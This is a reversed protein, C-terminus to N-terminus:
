AVRLALVAWLLRLLGLAWAVHAAFCSLWAQLAFPLAAHIWREQCSPDFSGAARLLQQLKHLLMCCVDVGNM